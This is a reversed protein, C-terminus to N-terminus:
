ANVPDDLSGREYLYDSLYTAAVKDPPWWLPHRAARSSAGGVDVDARLYLPEEGTLLVARLTGQLPSRTFTAGARAALGEAVTDAQQAALGGQKIPATTGDGAAYINEEGAVRGTHDVRIFGDDDAALGRIAPGTLRALTVLGDADVAAADSASLESNLHVEVDHQALVESVAESAQGGFVELPCAEPTFIKVTLDIDHRRAWMRTLLAVEYLPLSWTTNPPVVCGVSRVDGGQARRLYGAIRDTCGPGYLTAAEHLWSHREAGVAIVLADYNLTAGDHTFVHGHEPAVQVVAGQHLEVAHEECINKLSFKPAPGRGFAEEVALPRYTFWPSASVLRLDVRDGALARLALVTEVAAVGGGAILIVPRRGSPHPLKQM